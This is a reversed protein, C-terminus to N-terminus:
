NCLWYLVLSVCNISSTGKYYLIRDVNRLVDFCEYQEGKLYTFKRNDVNYSAARGDKFYIKITAYNYPHWHVAEKSLNPFRLRFDKYVKDWTFKAM